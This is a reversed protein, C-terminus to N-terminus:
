DEKGSSEYVALRQLATAAVYAMMVLREALPRKPQSDILEVVLEMTTMESERAVKVMGDVSNAIMAGAMAMMDVGDTGNNESM